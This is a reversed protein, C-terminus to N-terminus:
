RETSMIGWIYYPADTFTIFKNDNTNIRNIIIKYSKGNRLMCSNSQKLENLKNQPFVNTIWITNGVAREINTQITENECLTSQESIMGSSSVVEKITYSITVATNASLGNADNLTTEFQINNETSINTISTEDSSMYYLTAVTTNTRNENNIFANDEEFNHEDFAGSVSFANSNAITGIIGGSESALSTNTPYFTNNSGTLITPEVPQEPENNYYYEDTYYPDDTGGEDVIYNNICYIPSRYENSDSYINSGIANIVNISNIVVCYMEKNVLTTNNFLVATPTSDLTITHAINEKICVTNYNILHGDGTPEDGDNDDVIDMSLRYLSATITATFKSLDINDSMNANLFRVTIGQHFKETTIDIYEDDNGDIFEPENLRLYYGTPTDDPHYNEMHWDGWDLWDPNGNENTDIITNVVNTIVQKDTVDVSGVHAIEVIRARLNEGTLKTIDEIKGM